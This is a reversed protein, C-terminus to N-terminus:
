RRGRARRRLRRHPLRRLDGFTDLGREDGLAAGRMLGAATDPQHRREVLNGAEPVGSADLKDSLEGVNQRYVSLNRM